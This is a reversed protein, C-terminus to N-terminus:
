TADFEYGSVMMSVNADAGFLGIQEGAKLVQMGTWRFFTQAGMAASGGLVMGAVLITCGKAAAAANYADVCKIVWVKGAPCTSYVYAGTGSAAALRKSYVHSAL